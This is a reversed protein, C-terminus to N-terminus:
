KEIHRIMSYCVTNFYKLWFKRGYLNFVEFDVSIYELDKSKAWLLMTNLLTYALTKGRYKDKIYAGTIAISRSSNVIASSGSAQKEGKIFGIVENNDYALYIINDETLFKNFYEQTDYHADLFIPSDCLYDCIGQDMVLIDQIDDITAQKVKFNLNNDLALVDLSRIADIVLMGFGLGRFSTLSQTDTEFITIAHIIHGEKVWVNSIEKYMEYYIIEKDNGKVCHGFEPIYIGKHNNKFNNIKYGVIYGIVENNKIAIIGNNNNVIDTIKNEIESINNVSNLLPYKNHLILYNSKFLSIVEEIYENTLKRLDIVVGEKIKFNLYSTKM